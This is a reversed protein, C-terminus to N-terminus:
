RGLIKSRSESRSRNRDDRDIKKVLARFAGISLSAILMLPLVVVWLLVYAALGVFGQEAAFALLVAAGVITWRILNVVIWLALVLGVVGAILLLIQNESLAQRETAPHM